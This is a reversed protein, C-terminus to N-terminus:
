RVQGAHSTAARPPIKNQSNRAPRTQGTASDIHGPCRQPTWGNGHQGVTRKTEVNDTGFVGNRVDSPQPPGGALCLAATDSWVGVSGGTDALRCQRQRVSQGCDSSMEEFLARRKGAGATNRPGQQQQQQERVVHHHFSRKRYHQIVVVCFLIFISLFM